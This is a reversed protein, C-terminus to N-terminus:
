RVSGFFYSLSRLLLIDRKALNPKFKQEIGFLSVQKGFSVYREWEKEANEISVAGDKQLKKTRINQFVNFHAFSFGFTRHFNVSCSNLFFGHSTRSSNGFYEDKILPKRDIKVATTIADTSAIASSTIFLSEM